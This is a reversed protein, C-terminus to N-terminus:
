QQSSPFDLTQQEQAGAITRREPPKMQLIKLMPSSEVNSVDQPTIFIFQRNCMHKGVDILVDIIKKRSVPDLFVDFEDMVRFPTELSEGIALLLSITTFSREGGSLAKVDKQQSQENNSDKQVVLELTEDEDNFNVHGSSKKISLTENFRTSTYDSIYDRFHVWRERRLQLDEQIKSQTAEIEDIADKKGQFKQLARIYKDYATPEDDTNELRRKKEKKIQQILHQIKDEYQQCDKLQDLKEFIEIQELEQETPEQYEFTRLEDSGGDNKGRQKRQTDSYDNRHQIRKAMILYQNTDKQAERIVEAHESVLEEYQQLKKRKKALKERQQEIAHHHEMLKKEAEDLDRLIMANRAAIEDLNDKIAKIQPTKETISDQAKKQNEKIQDLHLQAAAVDEEEESTDVNNDICAAEEAKLDEIEKAIGDIETENNRLERKKINWEKKHNTHEHELKNYERNKTTLEEKMNQLDRKADEIAATMDAGITKKPRRKNSILHMNGKVIKWSDGEPLLYVDSILRGRIANRNNRDKVLLLDESEKKSRCLAKTDIKAADVLCNFVDDNQIAIVTAVTEVGEPPVPVQFRPRQKQQFVGCDMRCGAERRIKLFLKRDADNFVVFRDLVGNGIALEALSAYEEKESQIKCYYGLPGLVPARFKREQMARDVMQKVKACRPGFIHLANGSSSEMSRIKGEIGQVQNKLQSVNHRTSPIEAEVAEYANYADTVAQKLENHRNKEEALKKEAEQLKQNRRAQDSEASGAKAIIEDRRAQLRKNAEVLSRNVREEEQKLLKFQRALAKQPETARKLEQELDRKRNSMEDAEKALAELRNRREDNPDELEQSAAEAQTLEQKKKEAKEKFAEFKEIKAQEDEVLTRYNAWGLKTELKGKKGELKAIIQHQQYASKTDQVLQKDSELAKNLRFKQVEMEQVQEMTSAYTNDLRELETAKMFFNYKERAKGTLFKKAEEQDLIAVPNEVQINLKDLMEDLDRKSRSQEINDANFLKYGNYGGRLAITREVTIFDGYVDHEYADTGKNMLTVRVKAYNASTDKRVLEKLSRARNTRRAGAGLCVQIAALIASKGSGNQGHIFNVNRCLDVTLKRHCMFNEVYIRKIVGAEPPKNKPNISRRMLNGDQTDPHDDRNQRSTNLSTPRGDNEKDADVETNEAVGHPHQKDISSADKQKKQGCNENAPKVSLGRKRSTPSEEQFGESTKENAFAEETAEVESPTEM